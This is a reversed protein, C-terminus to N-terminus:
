GIAAPILMTLAGSATQLKRRVNIVDKKEKLWKVKKCIDKLWYGSGGANLSTGYKKDVKLRFALLTHRWDEIVGKVITGLEQLEPSDDYNQWLAVM